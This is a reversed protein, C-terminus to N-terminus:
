SLLQMLFGLKFEDDLTFFYDTNAQNQVLLQGARVRQDNTLGDINKLEDFVKMRWAAGDAEFPFCDALRRINEGTSAHLASIHKM